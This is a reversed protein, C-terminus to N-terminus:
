AATIKAEYRRQEVALEAILAGCFWNLLNIQYIIGNINLHNAIEEIEDIGPCKNTTYYQRLYQIQENTFNKEVQVFQAAREAFFQWIFDEHVM